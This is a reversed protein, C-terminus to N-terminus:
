LKENKDFIVAWPFRVTATFIRNFRSPQQILRYLWEIGLNQMWKPARRVHGSIFDFAGGVGIMVPINLKSKYRAIFKEQKPAGYAVLLIDPNTKLIRNIIAINKLEESKTLKNKIIPHGELFGAIKLHPYKESLNEAAMEGVKHKGGLFFIRFAKKESLASIKDILDVGTVRSNLKQGKYKAAWWIGAGDAVNLDSCNVIKQYEGDKQAAMIIEPNVTVIHHPKQSKVFQVIKDITEHYNIDEIKVGLIRIQNSM